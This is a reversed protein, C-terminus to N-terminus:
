IYLLVIQMVKLDSPSLSVQNLAFVFDFRSLDLEDPCMNQGDVVASTQLNEELPKLQTSPLDWLDTDVYSDYEDDNFKLPPTQKVLLFLDELSPNKIIVALKYTAMAM